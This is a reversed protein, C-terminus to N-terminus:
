ACESGDAKIADWWFQLLARRGAPRCREVRARLDRRVSPRAVSELKRRLLRSTFTIDASRLTDAGCGEVVAEAYHAKPRAGARAQDLLATGAAADDLAPAIHVRALRAAPGLSLPRFETVNSQWDHGRV